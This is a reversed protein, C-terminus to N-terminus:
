LGAAHLDGLAVHRQAHLLCLQDPPSCFFRINSRVQGEENGMMREEEYMYKYVYVVVGVGASLHGWGQPASGEM